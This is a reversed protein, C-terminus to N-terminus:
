DFKVPFRMDTKKYNEEIWKNARANIESTFFNTWDGVIGKRFKVKADDGLVHRFYYGYGRIAPNNRMNKINVHEALKEVKAETMDKELFGALKRIAAKQDRIVDEYFLFCVNKNERQKWGETVHEWYPSSCHSDNQFLDWFEEFAEPPASRGRFKFLSVAADKPNRAVYIVKCGSTLLSPPLLAFPLHSKIFRRNPNEELIKWQPRIVEKFEKLEEEDTITRRGDEIFGESVHSTAEIYPFRKVLPIRTAAELDDNVINWVIEQTLTTGSKPYTVVWVDDPRVKFNYISAAMSPYYKPARWITSGVFIKVSEINKWHESFENGPEITYPFKAENEM